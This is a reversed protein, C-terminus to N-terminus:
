QEHTGPAHVVVVPRDSHSLVSASSSGMMKSKLGKLGRSGIVIAAALFPPMGRKRGAPGTSARRRM